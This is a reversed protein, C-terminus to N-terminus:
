LTGEKYKALYEEAQERTVKVSEQLELVIDENLYNHKMAFGIIGKIEGIAEGEAKSEAKIEMIEPEMIELLAQCMAGGEKLSEMIKRNAQISVQFVSDALEKDYTEKLCSIAKVLVTMDDVTMSESLSRLWTHEKKELEKTIIIQVPFLFGEVFFIGDAHKKYTINQEQELCEFLQDPKTHRILTVTVDEMKVENLTKGYSKYLFAYGMVKSLVDIDLSDRPSKYEIINHKKFFKGIENKIESDSEKKIVLLDAELSKTNLNYERQFILSDRNEALELEMAAAFAPHWQIKKDEM